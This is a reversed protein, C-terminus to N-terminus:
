AAQEPKWREQYDTAGKLLHYAVVLVKYGVAILAKKKGMRKSWRRYTAGFTTGKTHSAAWAVQVLIARLWRSGKTTRGVRRKGGSQDNGPCLGAWSGLHGATPFRAMDAGVEAVIVEAAQRGVGPITMLGQGGGRRFRSARGGAQGPGGDGRRGSRKGVVILSELQRLQDMLLRLQFRHHETVRGELARTLPIVKKRLSGRAQDALRAPDSEGAILGAIM